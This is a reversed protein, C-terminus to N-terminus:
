FRGSVVAGNGALQPVGMDPPFPRFHAQIALHVAVMYPSFAGFWRNKAMHPSDDFFV